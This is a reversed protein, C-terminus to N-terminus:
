ENKDRLKNEILTIMVKAITPDFQTGAGKKIEDIAVENSMGKRYPRDATMADYADAVGIIRAIFPIDDGKLGEPYGKGDYREHHYRAGIQIGKIIEM